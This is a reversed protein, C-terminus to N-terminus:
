AAAALVMDAFGHILPLVSGVSASPPLPPNQRPRCAACCLRLFVNPTTKPPFLIAQPVLPPPPLMTPDYIDADAGYGSSVRAGLFLRCEIPGFSVTSANRKEFLVSSAARAGYLFPFFAFRRRHRITVCRTKFGGLRGYRWSAQDDRGGCVCM